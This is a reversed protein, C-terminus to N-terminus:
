ATSLFTNADTLKAAIVPTQASVAGLRQVLGAMGNTEGARNM